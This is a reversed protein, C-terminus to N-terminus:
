WFSRCSPTVLEGQSEASALEIDLILTSEPKLELCIDSKDLVLRVWKLSTVDNTKRIGEDICHFAESISSACDLKELFDLYRFSCVIWNIPYLELDISCSDTFQLLMSNLQIVLENTFSM